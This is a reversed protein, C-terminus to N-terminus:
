RVYKRLEDQSIHVLISLQRHSLHYEKRLKQALYIREDNNLRTTSTTSFLEMCTESCLSKAEVDEVIVGRVSSMKRQIAEDASKKSSLFARFCNHTRYISEFRSVDVYNTPLIFGNCVMWDPPMPRKTGCIKRRELIPYSSMSQPPSVNGDDGVLWPLVSRKSRFYLAGTGYLYDYPMVAKGDKTAQVITYTGVNMLYSEDDIECLECYLRVGKASGRRRAIARISMAQYREKFENCKRKTGWLLAHPHTDELSFSVVTAGTLYACVAFRNFALKFEQESTIFNRADDGNAFM